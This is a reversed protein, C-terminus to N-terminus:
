NFLHKMLGLDIAKKTTSWLKLTHKSVCKRMAIARNCTKESHFGFAAIQLNLKLTFKILAIFRHDLIFM